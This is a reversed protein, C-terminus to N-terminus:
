SKQAPWIVHLKGGEHEAIVPLDEPRFFQGDMSGWRGSHNQFLTTQSSSWTGGEDGTVLIVVAQDPLAALSQATIM